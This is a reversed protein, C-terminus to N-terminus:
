RAARAPARLPGDAPAGGRPRAPPLASRGTHKSGTPAAGRQRGQTFGALPQWTCPRLRLSALRPSAYGATEKTHRDSKCPNSLPSETGTELPASFEGLMQGTKMRGLIGVWSKPRGETKKEAYSPAYSEMAMETERTSTLLDGKSVPCLTKSGYPGLGSEPMRPWALHVLVENDM